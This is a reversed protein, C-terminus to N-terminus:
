SGVFLEVLIEILAAGIWTLPVIVLYLGFRAMISFDFPWEPVSDIERRYTLLPAVAELTHWSAQPQDQRRSDIEEQVRALEARKVERLATHIPWVPAVFLYALPFTTVILGPITTWPDMTGGLWMIPLTAQIGIVVLTSSVAMQAFPTLAHTNLLDINVERALRRFLRANDVLAHMACILFVWVLLSFIAGALSLWNVTLAHKMGAVSGLMLWSQLSWLSIGLTTNVLLWLASKESIGSRFRSLAERTLALQPALEDFAEETRRTIYHLIPTIYALIVGFFLAVPWTTDGSIGSDLGGAAWYTALYIGAIVLACWWRGYPINPILYLMWLRYKRPKAATETSKTNPLM